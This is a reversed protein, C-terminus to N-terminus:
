DAPLNMRTVHVVISIHAGTAEGACEEDHHSPQGPGLGSHRRQTYQWRAGHGPTSAFESEPCAAAM